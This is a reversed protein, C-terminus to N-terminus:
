CNQGNRIEGEAVRIKAKDTLLKRLLSADLIGLVIGLFGEKQEKAENKITKSPCKTLLGGALSLLNLQRRSIM